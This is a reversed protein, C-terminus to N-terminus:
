LTERSAPYLDIDWNRFTWDKETALKVSKWLLTTKRTQNDPSPEDRVISPVWHHVEFWGTEKDSLDPYKHHGKKHTGMGHVSFNTPFHSHKSQASLSWRLRKVQPVEWYSQETSIPPVTSNIGVCNRGILWLVNHRITYPTFQNVNHWSHQM